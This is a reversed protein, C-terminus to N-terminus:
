EPVQASERGRGNGEQVVFLLFFFFLARTGAVIVHRWADVSSHAARWCRQVRAHLLLLFFLFPRENTTKQMGGLRGGMHGHPSLFPFIFVFAPTCLRLLPSCPPFHFGFFFPECTTLSVLPLPLLFFFLSFFFVWLFSIFTSHVLYKALFRSFFDCPSV